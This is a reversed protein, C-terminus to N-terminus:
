SRHDLIRIAMALRFLYSFMLGMQWARGDPAFLLPCIPIRLLFFAPRESKHAELTPAM